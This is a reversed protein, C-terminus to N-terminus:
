IVLCPDIQPFTLERVTEQFINKNNKQKSKEIAHNVTSKFIRYFVGSSTYRKFQEQLLTEYVSINGEKKAKEIVYNLASRAAKSRIVSYSDDQFQQWVDKYIEIDGEEAKRTAYNFASQVAMFRIEDDDNNEFLRWAIRYVNINNSETARDSVYNFIIDPLHIGRYGGQRVIQLVILYHYYLDFIQRTDTDGLCLKRCLQNDPTPTPSVWDIQQGLNTSIKLFWDKNGYSNKTIISRFSSNNEEKKAFEKCKSINSDLEDILYNIYSNDVFELMPYKARFDKLTPLEEIIGIKESLSLYLDCLLQKPLNRWLYKRKGCWHIKDEEQLKILIFEQGFAYLLDLAESLPNQAVARRVGRALSKTITHIHETNRTKQAKNIFAKPQECRQEILTYSSLFEALAIDSLLDHALEWRKINNNQKLLVFGTRQLAALWAQSHEDLIIHKAENDFPFSLLLYALKFKDDPKSLENQFERALRQLLWLNNNKWSSQPLDVKTEKNEYYNVLTAVLPNDIEYEKSNLYIKECTNIRWEQYNRKNLDLIYCDYENLKNVGIDQYYNTDDAFIFGMDDPLYRLTVMLHVWGEGTHHIDDVLGDFTHTPKNAGIFFELCDDILLILHQKQQKAETILQTLDANANNLLLTKAQYQTKALRCIELALRTKGLGGFGKIVLPKSIHPETKNTILTALQQAVWSDDLPIYAQEESKLCARLTGSEGTMSEIDHLKINSTLNNYNYITIGSDVVNDNGIVDGITIQNM